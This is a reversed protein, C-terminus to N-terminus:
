FPQPFYFRYKGTNQGQNNYVLVKFGYTGGPYNVYVQAQGGSSSAGDSYNDNLDYVAINFENSPDFSNVTINYGGLSQGDGLYEVCGHSGSEISMVVPVYIETQADWTSNAEDLTIGPNALAHFSSTSDQVDAGLQIEFEDCETGAEENEVTIGLPSEYNYYGSYALGTLTGNTTSKDFAPPGSAAGTVTFNNATSSTVTIPYGADDFGAEPYYPYYQVTGFSNGQKVSMTVPVNLPPFRTPSSQSAGAFPFEQCELPGYCLLISTVIITQTSPDNGVYISSLRFSDAFYAGDLTLVDGSTYGEESILFDEYGSPEKQQMIVDVTSPGTFFIRAYQPQYGENWGTTVPNIGPPILTLYRDTGSLTSYWGVGDVFSGISATSDWYIDDTYNTCELTQPDVPEAPAVFFEISTIEFLDLGGAEFFLAGLPVTTTLNVDVEQGSTYSGFTNPPGFNFDYVSFDLSAVGTFTVRMKSIDLSSAWPGDVELGLAGSDSIYSPTLPFYSGPDVYWDEGFVEIWEGSPVPVVNKKVAIKIGM